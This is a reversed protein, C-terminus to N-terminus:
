LYNRLLEWTQKDIRGDAPLDNAKQFRRLAATTQRGMRGDISGPNFGANKLAVQIKIVFSYYAKSGTKPFARKKKQLNQTSYQTQGKQEGLIKLLYENKQKEKELDNTLKAIESDKSLAQTELSCIRGELEQKEAITACGGLSILIFLILLINLNKRIYETERKLM